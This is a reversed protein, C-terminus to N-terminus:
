INFLFSHKGSKYIQKFSEKSQTTPSKLHFVMSQVTACKASSLELRWRSLPFNLYILSGYYDDDGDDVNDFDDDYANSIRTKM